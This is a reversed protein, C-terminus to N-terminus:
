IALRTSHLAALSMSVYPHPAYNVRARVAVSQECPLIDFVTKGSVFAATGFPVPLEDVTDEDYRCTQQPGESVHVTYLTM